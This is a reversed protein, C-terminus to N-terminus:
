TYSLLIALHKDPQTDLLKYAEAAQDFAIVKPAFLTAPHVNALLKWAQEFRRQRDWRGRLAPEIQSVQSSIIRVRGRHFHEGLNLAARRRGYWSGVVIRGHEGVLDMALNIAEPSGSLEYVLDAKRTGLASQARSTGADPDFSMAGLKTALERRAAYRDFVILSELPHQALLATTLLGIIGTGLVVVREGLRPEADLILNVATEATPLFAADQESVAAPLPLLDQVRANFATEHPNFAFVIRGQWEPEVGDGLEEVRGVMCYGYKLPFALSGQLAALATDAALDAPAEGKYILLETGSSITSCIARV